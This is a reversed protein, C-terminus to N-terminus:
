LLICFLYLKMPYLKLLINVALIVIDNLYESQSLLFQAGSLALVKNV